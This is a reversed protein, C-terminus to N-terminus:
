FITNEDQDDRNDEVQWDAPDTSCETQLIEILQIQYRNWIQDRLMDIFEYVALAERATWHDPVLDQTM